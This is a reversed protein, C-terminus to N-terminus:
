KSRQMSRPLSFSILLCIVSLGLIVLVAARMGEVASTRVITDFSPQIAAPLGKFFEKREDGTFTQIVQQLKSIAQARQAPTVSQGLIAIAEDVIKISVITVLVTGLIARGLASGLNQFPSYISAAEVREDLKAVSFATVGIQALFLGSGTGMVILPLLLDLPKMTLAIASYLLVVGVCFTTLGTFILKRGPVKGVLKFTTFIVVILLSLSFPLVTLATQFPNTKLVAPLFQYLNFQMGTTILTHLTGTLLGLLFPVRRFLGVRLLSAKGQRSQQRQWAVFIGLCIVGAAILPPVISLAFPPIVLDLVRFTQKPEWWGYEGALSIGVLTFGFGLFSFLGGVWDLPEELFPPIDPVTRLLFIIIPVLLLQPLFAWRWGVESAILGGLLAGSLGGLVSCVILALQAYMEAKDDYLRDVLDRPSAILPTAGLGTILSYAIVFLGMNPSLATAIAGLSFVGLGVLYVLKRGFRRSLNECTPAFSAEVLTILVLAGQVYGISSDLDRVIRPMIAPIVSINFAVAFLTLCLGIPPGWKHLFSQRKQKM